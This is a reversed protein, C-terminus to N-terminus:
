LMQLSADQSKGTLLRVGTLFKNWSRAASGVLALLIWFVILYFITTVTWWWAIWINVITNLMSEAEAAIQETAAKLAEVAAMNFTLDVDIGIDPLHFGPIKIDPLNVRKMDKVGPIGNIIRILSNLISELTKSIAGVTGSIAYLSQRIPEISRKIEEAAKGGQNKIKVIEDAIRRGEERIKEIEQKASEIKPELARDVREIETNIDGIIKWSGVFLVLLILLPIMVKFVMLLGVIRPWLSKFFSRLSQVTSQNASNPNDM